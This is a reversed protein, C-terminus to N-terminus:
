SEGASSFTYRAPLNATLKHPTSSLANAFIVILAEKVLLRFALDPLAREKRLFAADIKRQSVSIDFKVFVSAPRSAARQICASWRIPLGSSTASTTANKAEFLVRQIM